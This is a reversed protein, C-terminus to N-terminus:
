INVRYYFYTKCFYRCLHKELNKLLWSYVYLQGDGKRARLRHEMGWRYGTLSVAYQVCTALLLKTSLVGKAGTVPALPSSTM